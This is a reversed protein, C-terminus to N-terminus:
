VEKKKRKQNKILRKKKKNAGGVTMKLQDKSTVSMNYIILM